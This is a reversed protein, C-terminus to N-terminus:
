EGVVKKIIKSMELMQSAIQKKFEVNESSLKELEKKCSNLLEHAEKLIDDKTTLYWDKGDFVIVDNKIPHLSRKSKIDLVMKM